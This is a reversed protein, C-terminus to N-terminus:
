MVSNPCNASFSSVGSTGTLTGFLGDAGAGQVCRLGFGDNLNMADTRNAPDFPPNQDGLTVFSNASLFVGDGGNGDIDNDAIDANAGRVVGVGDDVNNIIM